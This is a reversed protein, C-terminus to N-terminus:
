GAFQLPYFLLCTLVILFGFMLFILFLSIQYEFYYLYIMSILGGFVFIFLEILFIAALSISFEKYDLKHKDKLYQARFGLGSFPIIYNGLLTVAILGFWEKFSLEIAYIKLAKNLIAGQLLLYFFSAVLLSFVHGFSITKLQTLEHVHQQIFFYVGICVGIPICRMLISKFQM